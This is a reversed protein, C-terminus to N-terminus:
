FRPFPLPPSPQTQAVPAEKFLSLQDMVYAVVRNLYEWLDPIFEASDLIEGFIQNVRGGAAQRELSAIEAATEQEAQRIDEMTGQTQQMLQARADDISQRQEWELAQYEDPSMPQGDKLPFISLGMPSVQVACGAVQAAQELESM